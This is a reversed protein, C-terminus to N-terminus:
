IQQSGKLRLIEHRLMKGVSTTDGQLFEECEKLGANKFLLHQLLPSEKFSKYIVPQQLHLQEGATEIALKILKVFLCPNNNQLEGHSYLKNFTTILVKEAAERHPCIQLLIGFIMASYKDYINELSLNVHQTALPLM